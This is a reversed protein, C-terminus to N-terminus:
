LPMASEGAEPASQSNRRGKQKLRWMPVHIIPLALAPSGPEHSAYQSKQPEASAKLTASEAMYEIRLRSLFDRSSFRLPRRHPTKKRGLRYLQTCYETGQAGYLIMKTQRNVKCQRLVGRRFAMWSSASIFVQRERLMDVLCVEGDSGTFLAVAQSDQWLLFTRQSRLRCSLVRSHQEFQRSECVGHKYTQTSILCQSAKLISLIWVLGCV